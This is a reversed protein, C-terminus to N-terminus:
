KSYNSIRTPLIKIYRSIQLVALHIFVFNPQRWLITNVSIEYVHIVVSFHHKFSSSHNKACMGTLHYIINMTISSYVHLTKKKIKSLVSWVHFDRLKKEKEMHTTKRKNDNNQKSRLINVWGEVVFSQYVSLLFFLTQKRPTQICLGKSYYTFM